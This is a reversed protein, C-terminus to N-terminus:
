GNRWCSRSVSSTADTVTALGLRSVTWTAGARVVAGNTLLSVAQTQQDALRKVETSKALRVQQSNISELLSMRDHLQEVTLGPPLTLNEVSFDKANPDKRIQWPDHKPGLFGAHQGPWVLPGEALFTPLTM